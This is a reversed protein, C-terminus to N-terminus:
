RMDLFDLPQFADRTALLPRLRRLRRRGRRCRGVIRGGYRFRLYPPQSGPRARSARGPEIVAMFFSMADRLQVAPSMRVTVMVRRAVLELEHARTAAQIQEVNRRLM